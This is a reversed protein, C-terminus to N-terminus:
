GTGRQRDRRQDTWQRQADGTLRGYRLALQLELRAEPDDLSAGFIERLRRLRYRVTQPHVGLREAVAGVEGQHDLWAGLTAELRRGTKSQDELLPGLRRAVLESALDPEGALLLTAVHDDSRHLDPQALGGIARLTARARTFSQRADAPAVEPGITAVAGAARAARRLRPLRSGRGPDPVLVCVVEGVPAAPLDDELRTLLAHSGAVPLVMAAVTAPTWGAEEAAVEPAETAPPYDGVLLHVLHQHRVRRAGSARSSEYAFGLASQTALDNVYAFIAEILDAVADSEWEAAAAAARARRVTIRAGIHWATLLSPLDRGARVHGRGLNFYVRRRRTRGSREVEGALQELAQMAAVQLAQLGYPGEAPTRFTPVHHPVLRFVDEAASTLVQRRLMEAAARPLHVWPRDLLPTSMEDHRGTITSKDDM